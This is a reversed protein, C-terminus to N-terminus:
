EMDLLIDHVVEAIWAERTDRDSREEAGYEIGGVSSQVAPGYQGCCGCPATQKELWVVAYCWRDHFWGEVHRAMVELTDPNSKAEEAPVWWLRRRHDRYVIRAAGDCGSPRVDGCTEVIHGFYDHDTLKTESDHTIRGRVRGGDSLPHWDTWGSEMGRYLMAAALTDSLTAPTDVSTPM